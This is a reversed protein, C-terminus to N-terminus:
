LVGELEKETMGHIIKPNYLTKIRLADEPKFNITLVTPTASFVSNDTYTIKGFLGLGNAIQIQVITRVHPRETYQRPNVISTVSSIGRPNTTYYFMGGKKFYNLVQSSLLGALKDPEGIMIKFNVSDDAAVPRIELGTLQRIQKFASAAEQEVAKDYEASQSGYIKYYIPTSWKRIILTKSLPNDYTLAVAKFSKIQAPTLKQAAASQTILLLAFLLIWLNKM